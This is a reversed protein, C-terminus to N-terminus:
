IELRIKNAFLQAYFQPSGVNCVLRHLGLTFVLFVVGPFAVCSVLVFPFYCLSVVVVTVM